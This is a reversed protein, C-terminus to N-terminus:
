KTPKQVPLSFVVVMLLIGVGYCVTSSPRLKKPASNSSKSHISAKDNCKDETGTPSNM